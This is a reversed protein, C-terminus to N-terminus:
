SRPSLLLSEAAALPGHRPSGVSAGVSASATGSAISPSRLRDVALRQEKVSSIEEDVLAAYRLQLSRYKGALEAYASEAVEANQRLISAYEVTRALENTLRHM